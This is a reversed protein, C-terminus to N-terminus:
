VKSDNAKRRKDPEVINTITYRRVHYEAALARKSAGPGGQAYKARIEAYQEDTLKRRRDTKKVAM